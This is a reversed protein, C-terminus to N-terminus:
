CSGRRATLAPPPCWRTTSLWSRRYGCPRGPTALPVAAPRAHSRHARIGLLHLTSGPRLHSGPAAEPAPLALVYVVGGILGLLLPRASRTGPKYRTLLFNYCTHNGTCHTIQDPVSLVSAPVVAGSRFRNSDDVAAVVM